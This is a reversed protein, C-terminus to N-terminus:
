AVHGGRGMELAVVTAANLSYGVVGTNMKALFRAPVARGAVYGASVWAIDTVDSGSVGFPNRRHHHVHYKKHHHHAMSHGEKRSRSSGPLPNWVRIEAM